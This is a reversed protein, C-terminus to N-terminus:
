NRLRVDLGRRFLIAVGRSGSEGHSWINKGGWQHKWFSGDSPTSHTEQIFAINYKKARLRAFISKRKTEINLSNVNFSALSLESSGMFYVSISPFSLSAIPIWWKGEIYM